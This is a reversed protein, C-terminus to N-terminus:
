QCSSTGQFTWITIIQPVQRVMFKVFPKRNSTIFVGSNIIKPQYVQPFQTLNNQNGSQDDLIAVYGNASEIFSLM